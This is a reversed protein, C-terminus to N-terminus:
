AEDLSVRRPSIITIKGQVREDFIFNKKTQESIFKILVPLDVDTFDMSIYVPPPSPPPTAPKEAPGAPKQGKADDGATAQTDVAPAQVAGPSVTEPGPAPDDPKVNVDATGAAAQTEIAGPPSGATPPDAASVTGATALWLAALALATKRM